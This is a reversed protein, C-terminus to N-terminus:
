CRRSNGEIDTLFIADSITNIAKLLKLVLNEDLRVELPLKEYSKRLRDNNQQLKNLEKILEEKTKLKNNM